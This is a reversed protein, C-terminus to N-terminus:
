VQKCVGMHVHKHTLLRVLRLLAGRGGEHQEVKSLLIICGYFTTVIIITIALM